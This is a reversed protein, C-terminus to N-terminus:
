LSAVYSLQLHVCYTTSHSVLFCLLHGGLLVHVMHYLLVQPIMRMLTATKYVGLYFFFYMLEKSFGVSYRMELQCIKKLAIRIPESMVANFVIVTLCPLGSSEWHFDM